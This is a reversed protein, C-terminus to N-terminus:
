GFITFNIGLLILLVTVVINIPIDKKRNMSTIGMPLIMATIGLILMTNFINSGIVNGVAIDANGKFAGIFSVVMEPASTGMGVITLGIVFESIGFKRAVSSSGEVLAEAGGVVLVLGAILILIQIIM